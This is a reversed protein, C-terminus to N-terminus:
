KMEKLYIYDSYEQVTVFKICEFSELIKRLLKINHGISVGVLEFDQPNEKIVERTQCGISGTAGLIIIKKM